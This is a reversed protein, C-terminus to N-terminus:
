DLSLLILVTMPRATSKTSAAQAAMGGASGLACTIPGLVCTLVGLTARFLRQDPGIRAEDCSM